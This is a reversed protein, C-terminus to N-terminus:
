WDLRRRPTEKGAEITVRFKQERGDQAVARVAHTGAPLAQRVIPTVGISKGDVYITAWPRSDVTLFGPGREKVVKKAPTRAKAVPPPAEPLKDVVPPPPAADPVVPVPAVAVPAADPPLPLAVVTPTEATGAVLHVILAFVAGAAAAIVVWATRSLGAPRLPETSLRSVEASPPPAALPMRTGPRDDTLPVQSDRTLSGRGDAGMSARPPALDVDTPLVPLDDAPMRPAARRGTTKAKALADAVRARRERIEGGFRADMWAAVSGASLPPGLPHMAGVLRESLVRMTAPRQKRDRSLASAIVEALAAPLDAQAERVDPIREETIARFTHYDNDFRFLGKGGYLEWLVVGLSFVDSRRDLTEGRVQEPSMYATKGLIHGTRTRTSSWRSKAIGFDVVKVTGDVTVLLNQPSVDRHVLGAPSGDLATLEHAYHLGECAQRALETLLRLDDVERPRPLAFGVRTMTVGELYEMVITYRGADEGLEYVQCVNAHNIRAATRAEDLFMDVHRREDALHPLLRKLVVLKEFGQTGELRALLIEAQGGTALKALPVYRNQM